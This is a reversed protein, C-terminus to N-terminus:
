KKKNEKAPKGSNCKGCVAYRRYGNPGKHLVIVLENSPKNCIQCTKM